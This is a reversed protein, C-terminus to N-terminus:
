DKPQRACGSFSHPFMRAPQPTIVHFGDIDPYELRPEPLNRWPADHDVPPHTRNVLNAYHASARLADQERRQEDVLVSNAEEDSQQQRRGSLRYRCIWWGIAIMSCYAAALAIGYNM